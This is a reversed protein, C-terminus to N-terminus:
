LEMNYKIRANVTITSIMIDGGPIKLESHKKPYIIYFRPNYENNNIYDLYEYTFTFYFHHDDLPSKIDGYADDSMILFGSGFPNLPDIGIKMDINEICGIEAFAKLVGSLGDFFDPFKIIANDDISDFKMPLWIVIEATISHSHKLWELDIETREPLYIRYKIALNGGSNIIDNINIEAGVDPPLGIDAYEELDKIGSPGKIIQGDPVLPIDTGDPKIQHLDISVANSLESGSIFIKAHIDTFEFDELYEGIGEFTLTYPKDEASEAITEDNELVFFKNGNDILEVPIEIDNNILISGLGDTFSDLDFDCTYNEKNFIEMRMIFAMYELAPNTCVLTKTSSDANIIKDIMDSFYNGFNMNAAFTLSPSGTFELESPMTCAFVSFLILTVCLFYCVKKM